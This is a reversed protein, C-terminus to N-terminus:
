CGVCKYLRGYAIIAYYSLHCCSRYVCLICLGGGYEWGYNFTKKVYCRDEALRVFYFRSNVVKAWNRRFLLFVTKIVVKVIDIIDFDGFFICVVIGCVM